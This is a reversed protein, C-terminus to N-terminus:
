LQAEKAAIRHGVHSGGRYRCVFPYLREGNRKRVNEVHQEALRRTAHRLKERCRRVQRRGEALANESQVERNMQL